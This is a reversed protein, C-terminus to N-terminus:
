HADHNLERQLRKYACWTLICTVLIVGVVLGYAGWIYAAYQEFHPIM